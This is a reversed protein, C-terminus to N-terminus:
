LGFCKLGFTFTFLFLNYRRNRYRLFFSFFLAQIYIKVFMFSAKALFTLPIKPDPHNIHVKQDKDLLTKNVLIFNLSPKM